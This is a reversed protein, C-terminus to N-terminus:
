KIVTAQAFKGESNYEWLEGQPTVVSAVEPFLYDYRRLEAGMTSAGTKGGAAIVVLNFALIAWAAAEGDLSPWQVLWSGDKINEICRDARVTGPYPYGATILRHYAQRVARGVKGPFAQQARWVKQNNAHVQEATMEGDFRHDPLDHNARFDKFAPDAEAVRFVTGGRFMVAWRPLNSNAPPATFLEAKAKGLDRWEFFSEGGAPTTTRKGEEM